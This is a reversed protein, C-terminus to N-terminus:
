AAVFNVPRKQFILYCHDIFVVNLFRGCRNSLLVSIHSMERYDEFHMEFQFVGSVLWRSQAGYFFGMCFPNNVCLFIEQEDSECRCVLLCLSARPELMTIGDVQWLSAM